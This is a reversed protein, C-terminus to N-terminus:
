VTPPATRCREVARMVRLHSLPLAHNQRYEDGYNRLIDALECWRNQAAARKAVPLM